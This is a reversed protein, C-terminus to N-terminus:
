LSEYVCVCVGFCVCMTPLTAAIFDISETSIFIFSFIAISRCCSFISNFPYFHHFVLLCKTFMFHPRYRIFCVDTFAAFLVSSSAERRKITIQHAKDRGESVKKADKREAAAASSIFSHISLFFYSSSSALCCCFLHFDKQFPWISISDAAAKKFVCFHFFRVILPFPAATLPCKYIPLYTTM